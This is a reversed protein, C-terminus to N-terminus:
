TNSFSLSYPNSKSQTIGCVDKLANDIRNKEIKFNESLIELESVVTQDDQYSLMLNSLGRISSNLECGIRELHIKNEEIDEILITLTDKVENYFGCLKDITTYRTEGLWWKLFRDWNNKNCEMIEIKSDGVVLKQGANIKGIVKLKSILYHVSKEM